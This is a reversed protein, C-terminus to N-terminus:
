RSDHKRNEFKRASRAILDRGNIFYLNQVHNMNRTEFNERVVHSYNAEKLNDLYTKQVRNMNGTEFNGRVVHSYIGETAKDM